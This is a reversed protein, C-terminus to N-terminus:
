VGHHGCRGGCRDTGPIEWQLAATEFNCEIDDESAPCGCYMCLDPQCMRVYKSACAPPSTPPSTVPPSTTATPATSAARFDELEDRLGENELREKIAQAQWKNHMRITAQVKGALKKHAKEAARRGRRAEMSINDCKRKMDAIRDDHKRVQKCIEFYRAQYSFEKVALYKSQTGSSTYTPPAEATPPMTTTGTTAIPFASTNTGTSVVAPASDTQTESATTSPPLHSLFIRVLLALVLLLSAMIVFLLAATTADGLRPTLSVGQSRDVCSLAATTFAPLASALAPFSSITTTTTITTAVVPLALPPPPADNRLPHQPWALWSLGLCFSSFIRSQLSM